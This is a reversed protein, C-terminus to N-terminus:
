KIPIYVEIETGKNEESSISMKGGLQTVMENVLKLGLGFGKEGHTGTSLESSDELYSSIAKESIGIGSDKVKGFLQKGIETNVIDLKVEIKGAIPTFKISNSILNGFISLLKKRSFSRKDKEPDSIVEFKIEKARAPLEYLQLLRKKFDGLTFDRKRSVDEISASNLIDDTLDIISRGSDKIMRFYEKMEETSLDESEVSEALGSIGHVPGRVDHAVQNKVRVADSLTFLTENLKRRLELKNVIETAIIALAKKKDDPIIMEARHMMCLVGVNEGSSLTLPMGLYYRYGNEGVVSQKNRFREDLDLREVEMHDSSYLTHSCISQERPIQKPAAGDSSLSWQSYNDILNIVSLETGSILEAVEILSKFHHQLEHFDLDFESLKRIRQYEKELLAPKATEM